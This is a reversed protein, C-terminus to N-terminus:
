IIKTGKFIKLVKHLQKDDEFYEFYKDETIKLLKALDQSSYKLEGKYEDILEKLLGPSEIPMPYPEKTRFGSKSMQMWLYKTQNKTLVNLDEARKLLANISVKWKRKLRLLLEVNLRITNIYRLDQMIDDAPMLFESAFSFAENEIDHSEQLQQHMILHGLEHALTMRIREGPFISNFFIIPLIDKAGHITFGDLAETKFDYTIVFIGTDELLQTMNSIPGKPLRLNRRTLRAIDIPTITDSVSVPIFNYTIEVAELLKKLHIRYINAIAEVRDRAGIQLTSRNRHYPNVPSYSEENQFFFSSDVEFFSAIQEVFSEPPELIGQEIKSFNGQPFNLELCIEKQSINKSKRLLKLIEGNYQKEM